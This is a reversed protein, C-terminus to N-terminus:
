KKLKALRLKAKKGADTKAYNAVVEEYFAMAEEKMGLEQFCLGIKYKSDGVEKGKPSEDVYKQYHLIAKKWEKSAFFGQAVEYSNSKKEASAKTNKGSKASTSSEVQPVAAAAAAAAVAQKQAAQTAAQESEIKHIQAELKAMAEQMLQMKQVNQAEKQAEQGNTMNKEKNLQNIQAELSEIRGNLSRILEDREDGSASSGARPTDLQSAPAEKAATNQNAANKRSYVQSQEDEGVESRTKLCSTFFFGLIIVFIVKLKM